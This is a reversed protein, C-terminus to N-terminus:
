VSFFFCVRGPNSGPSKRNTTPRRIGNPWLALCVLVLEFLMNKKITVDGHRIISRPCSESSLVTQCSALDYRTGSFTPVM